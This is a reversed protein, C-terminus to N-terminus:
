VLKSDIKFKLILHKPLIFQSRLSELFANVSKSKCIKFITSNEENTTAM